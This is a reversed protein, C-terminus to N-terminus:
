KLQLSTIEKVNGDTDISAKFLLKSKADKFLGEVVVGSDNKAFGVPVITASDTVSAVNKNDLLAAKIRRPIDRVLAEGYGMDSYLLKWYKKAAEDIAIKKMINGGRHRTFNIDLKVNRCDALLKHIAKSLINM